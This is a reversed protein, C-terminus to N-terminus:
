RKKSYNIDNKQNAAEAKDNNIKKDYESQIKKYQKVETSIDIDPYENKLKEISKQTYGLYTKMTPTLKGKDYYRQISKIHRQLASFDVYAPHNHNLTTNM